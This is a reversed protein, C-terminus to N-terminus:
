RRRERTPTPREPTEKSTIGGLAGALGSKEVVKALEALGEDIGEFAEAQFERVRKVSALRAQANTVMGPLREAMEPREKALRRVQSSKLKKVAAAAAEEKRQLQKPVVETALALKGRAQDLLSSAFTKRDSEGAAARGELGDPVTVIVDATVARTRRRALTPNASVLLKVNRDLAEGSTTPSIRTALDTLTEGKKLKILEM